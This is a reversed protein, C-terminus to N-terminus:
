QMRWLQTPSIRQFKLRMKQGKLMYVLTEREGVPLKEKKTKSAIWYNGRNMGPLTEKLLERLRNEAVHSGSILLHIHIRKTQGEAPHEAIALKDCKSAWVTAIGSADVYPLFICAHFNM